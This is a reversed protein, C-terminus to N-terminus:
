GPGFRAGTAVDAGYGPGMGVMCIMSPAVGCAGSWGLFVSGPAPVAMLTVITNTLYTETCDSPCDIGAPDSIIRGNAGPALDLSTYLTRPLVPDSGFAAIATKDGDMTITCVPATGSCAGSWGDFRPAASLRATLTVVTGARYRETCPQGPTCSRDPPDMVVDGNGTVVVTLNYQRVFTATVAAGSDMKVTCEGTGTCAGSWGTFLLEPGPTIPRLAVSQGRHFTARCRTPCDIAPRAGLALVRGEGVVTVSLEPPVYVRHTLLGRNPAVDVCGKRCSQTSQYTTLASWRYTPPAGLLRELLTVKITRTDPRSVPVRMLVTGHTDVLAGRLAGDVWLVVVLRDLKGDGTQDFAFAVFNGDKLLKSPFARYARITHVLKGGRESHSVSAIDLAGRVDHPDGARGDNALALRPM